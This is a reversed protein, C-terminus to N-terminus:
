AARERLKRAAQECHGCCEGDHGHEDEANSTNTTNTDAPQQTVIKGDLGVRGRLEFPKMGLRLGRKALAERVETLSTEGFCRASLIEEETYLVLQGVTQAGVSQMIRFGRLSLVLDYKGPGTQDNM